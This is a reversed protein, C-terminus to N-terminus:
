KNLVSRVTRAHRTHLSLFRKRRDESSGLHVRHSKSVVAHYKGFLRWPWVKEFFIVRLAHLHWIKVLAVEFLRVDVFVTKTFVQRAKVEQNKSM